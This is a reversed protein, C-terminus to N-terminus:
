DAVDTVEEFVFRDLVRFLPVILAVASLLAALLPSVGFGDVLVTMFAIHMVYVLVYAALYRWFSRRIPASSQWSWIRNQLYGWFMGLVYTVTAAIRYEVALYTLLAFLGYLSLNVVVGTVVFRLATSRVISLSEVM